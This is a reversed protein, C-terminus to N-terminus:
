CHPPCLRFKAEVSEHLELLQATTRQVNQWSLGGGDEINTAQGCRQRMVLSCWM